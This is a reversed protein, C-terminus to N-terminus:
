LRVKDERRMRCLIAELWRPNVGDLALALRSLTSTYIEPAPRRVARWIREALFEPTTSFAPVEYAKGSPNRANEFFPTRVSMPLLETVYVGAARGEVRLAQSFVHMAAKTCAYTSMGPLARRAAASSVNFIHGRGRAGMRRLADRSLTAMAFFNVEFLLRLDAETTELIDAQMGIGANNVLIDLPFGEEELRDILGRVQEPKSLDCHIPIACGRRACIEDVTREVQEPVEALIGVVYGEKAFRDAVARGIGSTAGTVLVRKV